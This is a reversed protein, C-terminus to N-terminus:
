FKNVDRLFQSSHMLKNSARHPNEESFASLYMKWVMNSPRGRFAPYVYINIKDYYNSFVHNYIEQEKGCFIGSKLWSDHVEWFARYFKDIGVKTGFFGGGQILDNRIKVESHKPLRRRLLFFLCLELPPKVYKKEIESAFKKSPFRLFHCKDDKESCLNGSDDFKNFYMPDRVIGSDAWFYYKVNPYILTSERVFFVKSNWIAYLSPNHRFSERDISHVKQYAEKLKKVSPSEFIDNYTLNFIFLGRQSPTLNKLQNVYYNDYFQRTTYILTKCNMVRLFYTILHEYESNNRKSRELPFYASVVLVDTFLNDKLKIHQNIYDVPKIRTLLYIMLLFFILIFNSIGCKKFILNSFPFLLDM